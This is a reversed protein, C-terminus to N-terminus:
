LLFDLSKKVTNGHGFHNVIEVNEESTLINAGKFVMLCFSNLCLVHLYLKTVDHVYYHKLSTINREYFYVKSQNWVFNWYLVELTQFVMYDLRAAPWLQTDIIRLLYYQTDYIWEFESQLWSINCCLITNM